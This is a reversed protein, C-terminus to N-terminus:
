PRTEKGAPVAPNAAVPEDVQVQRDGLVHTVTQVIGSPWRIEISDAVASAGMGFHVRPDSSSLYGGATTATVWQSGEATTLKVVAGIGDRNSKHGTLHLTIWHNATATENHLIHAPGGNTSVVADIRGDNDIDGVAM